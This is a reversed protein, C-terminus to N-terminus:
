TYDDRDLSFNTDIKAIAAILLEALQVLDNLDCVERASHSARMPFGVDISAVGKGTLQVYSLDTLVGSQASRQLTIKQEKATTEFLAVMAPHPIVGNLTGRGHFSFLSMGPGFGLVMDGRATMDPTDSALMLDIQIAIDPQLQQALPQAGRLNFEELVTFALDVPPGSTRKKLSRALALLVACGARDDISTGCIKNGALETAHPEYVVAQGIRIGAAEVAEASGHGTDVYLEAYPTVDYKEAVSTAHHSKNAIIGPVDQGEAVCILVSQAALAREPVGGVRELRLLGNAEIKRIVFGLQDMHTFLMVRPGYGPFHTHLNGLRDSTSEIDLDSLRQKLARRVRDEHGSLGPILMLDMMNNKITERM